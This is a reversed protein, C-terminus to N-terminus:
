SFVVEGMVIYQFITDASFADIDDNFINSAIDEYNDMLVQLRAQMTSASIVGVCEDENEADHIPVDVGHDLVAKVIATSLYKDVEVPVAKRVAVISEDPIFYWYNSGGELATVFIDEISQRSIEKTIKM